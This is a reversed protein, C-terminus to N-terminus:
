TRQCLRLQRRPPSAGAMRWASEHTELAPLRPNRCELLMPSAVRKSAAVQFPTTAQVGKSRDDAVAAYWHALPTSSRAVLRDM